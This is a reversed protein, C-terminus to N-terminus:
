STSASRRRRLSRPGDPMPTVRAAAPTSACKRCRSMSRTTAAPRRMPWISTSRAPPARAAPAASAAAAEAATPPAPTATAMASPAGPAASAAPAPATAATAAADSNGDGNGNSTGTGGGDGAGEAGGASGEAGGNSPGGIVAGGDTPASSGGGGCSALALLISGLAFAGFLTRIRTTLSAKMAEDSRRRRDVRPTGRLLLDRPRRACAGGGRGRGQCDARCRARRALPRAERAAGAGAGCQAEQVGAAGGAPIAAYMVKRQFRPDDAGHQLNHDITDILDAVDRGLIGLKDIASHQPVYGHTVLQLRADELREVAGVRILEDLVARAPM